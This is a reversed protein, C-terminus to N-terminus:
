LDHLEKWSTLPKNGLVEGHIRKPRDPGQIPFDKRQPHGEYDDPMFIRSLNPHGSFPIGMMDYVEREAWNAAPHRDTLSPVTTEEEVLSKIRIRHGRLRDLFHWFIGFRAGEFDPYLSYDVATVDLLVPFGIDPSVYWIAEAVRRIAHPHILLTPMDPGVFVDILVMGTLDQVALMTEEEWDLLSRDPRNAVTSPFTERMGPQAPSM